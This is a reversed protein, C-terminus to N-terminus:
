SRLMRDFVSVTMLSIGFVMCVFFAAGQSVGAAYVERFSPSFLNNIFIWTFAGWTVGMGLLAGSRNTFTFHAFIIGLVVCLIEYIVLGLATAGGEFNLATAGVFPLAAIKTPFWADQMWTAALFCAFVMSIAGAVLGAIAGAAWRTKDLRIWVAVLNPDHETSTM